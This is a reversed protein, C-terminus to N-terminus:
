TQFVRFIINLKLTKWRMIKGSKRHIKIKGSTTESPILIQKSRLMTVM